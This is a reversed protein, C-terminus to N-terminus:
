SSGFGTRALGFTGQLSVSWLLNRHTHGFLTRAVGNPRGGVPDRSNVLAVQKAAFGLARPAALDLFAM